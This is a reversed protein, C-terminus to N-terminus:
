CRNFENTKLAVSQENEVIQLELNTTSNKIVNLVYTTMIGLYKAIISM